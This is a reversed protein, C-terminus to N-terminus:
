GHGKKKRPSRLMGEEELVSWLQEWVAEVPLASLGDRSWALAAGHLIDLAKAMVAPPPGTGCGGSGARQPSAPPVQGQQRDLVANALRDAAANQTRPIHQFQVEDFAPLRQKALNYLQLLEPQRVRYQGTLQRVLLESDSLVQLRRVGHAHALDLGEILATYEAVNNTARGIPAARTVRTPPSHGDDIELIAAFAAPGPNGRAAGDIFLRGSTM